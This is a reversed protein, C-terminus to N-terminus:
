KEKILRRCVLRSVALGGGAGLASSAIGGIPGAGVTGLATASATVIATVFTVCDNFDAESGPKYESSAAFVDESSQTFNIGAFEEDTSKSVLWIQATNEAVKELLANPDAKRAEHELESLNPLSMVFVQHIESFNYSVETPL